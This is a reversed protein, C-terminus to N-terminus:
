TRARDCSAPFFVGDALRTVALETTTYKGIGCIVWPDTALIAELRRRAVANAIVVQAADGSVPGAMVFEGDALHADLWLARLEDMGAPVCGTPINPSLTSIYMPFIRTYLVTYIYLSKAGHGFGVGRHGLDASEHIRQTIRKACLFDVRDHAAAPCALGHKECALVTQFETRSQWGARRPVCLPDAIAVEALAAVSATHFGTEPAGFTTRPPDCACRSLLSLSDALM